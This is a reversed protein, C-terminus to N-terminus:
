EGDKSIPNLVAPERPSALGYYVLREYVSDDLGILWGRLEADLAVKSGRKNVGVLREAYDGFWEPPKQGKPWTIRNQIGYIGKFVIQWRGTKTQRLFAM